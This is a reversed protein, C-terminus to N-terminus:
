TVMCKGTYYCSVVNKIVYDCHIIGNIYMGCASSGLPKEDCKLSELEIAGESSLKVAESRTSSSTKVFRAREPDDESPEIYPEKIPMKIKYGIFDHPDLRQWM